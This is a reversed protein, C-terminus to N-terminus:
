RFIYVPSTWARTGDEQSLRLFVPNDGSSNLAIPLDFALECETLRDPLRYVRLWRPLTESRDFLIPETGIEAIDLTEKVLPTDVILRGAAPDELWLDIAAQNGTTLSRWALNQDDTQELRKDPNLFSVPRAELIRNGQVSATGDWIM